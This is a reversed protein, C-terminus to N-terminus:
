FLFMFSSFISCFFSFLCYNWWSNIYIAGKYAYLPSMCPRGRGWWTIELLSGTAFFHNEVLLAALYFQCRMGVWFFLNCALCHMECLFFATLSWPWVLEFNEKESTSTLLRKPFFQLSRDAYGGVWSNLLPQPSASAWCCWAWLAWLASNSLGLQLLCSWHAGQPPCGGDPFSGCRKLFQLGSFCALLSQELCFHSAEMSEVVEM